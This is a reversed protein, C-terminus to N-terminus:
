RPGDFTKKAAIERRAKVEYSLWLLFVGGVVLEAALGEPSQAGAWLLWAAVIIGVLVAGIAVVWYVGAIIAPLLALFLIAVVIGGAIEIMNVKAGLM